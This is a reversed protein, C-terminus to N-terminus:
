KRARILSSKKRRRKNRLVSQLDCQNLMRLTNNVTRSQLTKPKTKFQSKSQGMSVFEKRAVEANLKVMDSNCKSFVIINVMDPSAEPNVYINEFRGEVTKHIVSIVKETSSHSAKMLLTVEILRCINIMNLQQNKPDTLYNRLLDLYQINSEIIISKTKNSFHHHFKEVEKSVCSCTEFGKCTNGCKFFIINLKSFLCIFIDKKVNMNTQRNFFHVMKDICEPIECYNDFELVLSMSWDGFDHLIEDMMYENINYSADVVYTNSEYEFKYNLIGTELFKMCNECIKGNELMELDSRFQSVDKKMKFANFDQSSANKGAQSSCLFVLYVLWLRGIFDADKIITYVTQAKDHLDSLNASDLILPLYKMFIQINRFISEIHQHCSDIYREECIGIVATFMLNPDKNGYDFFIQSLASRPSFYKVILNSIDLTEKVWLPMNNQILCKIKHCFDPLHVVQPDYLSKSFLSPYIENLTEKYDTEGNTSFAVIDKHDVLGNCADSFHDISGQVSKDFLRAASLLAKKARGQEDIYTTIIVQRTADHKVTYKDLSVAHKRPQKTFPNIDQFTAALDKKIATHNAFLIDNFDITTHQQNDLPNTQDPGLIIAIFTALVALQNYSQGLDVLYQVAICLNRTATEIEQITPLGKLYRDRDENEQGKLSEQHLASKLHLSLYFSKLHLKDKFSVGRGIYDGGDNMAKSSTTIGYRRCVSCIYRHDNYIKGPIIYFVNDVMSDISDIEDLSPKILSEQALTHCCCTSNNHSCKKATAQIIQNHVDNVTSINSCTSCAAHESLNESVVPPGQEDSSTRTSSLAKVNISPLIIKISQIQDSQVQTEVM